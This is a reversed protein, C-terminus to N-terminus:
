KKRMYKETKGQSDNLTLVGDQITWKYHKSGKDKYSESLVDGMITYTGDASIMPVALYCNQEKTFHLIQKAGTYHDGTWKGIIGSNGAGPIRTLEQKNGSDDTLTLKDGDIKFTQVIDSAEPVQPLSLTLKKGDLKYKFDVLAGFTAQVSDVKSYNKAAGLGGKTREVSIWEGLISDAAASLGPTILFAIAILCTIFQRKM